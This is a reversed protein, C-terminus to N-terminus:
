TKYILVNKSDIFTISQFSRVKATSMQSKNALNIKEGIASFKNTAFLAVNSSLKIWKKAFCSSSTVGESNPCKGEVKVCILM